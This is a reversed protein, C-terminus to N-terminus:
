RLRGGIEARNEGIYHDDNNANHSRRHEDKDDDNDIDETNTM